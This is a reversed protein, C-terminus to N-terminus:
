QSPTPTPTLIPTPAGATAAGTPVSVGLTPLVSPVAQNSPQRSGRGLTSVPQPIHAVATLTPATIAGLTPLPTPVIAQVSPSPAALVLAVIPGVPVSEGRRDFATVTYAYTVGASLDGSDTFTDMDPATVSGVITYPGLRDTARYVRYGVPWPHPPQWSLLVGDDNTGAISLGTPPQPGLASGNRVTSSLGAGALAGSLAVVIIFGVISILIRFVTIRQM